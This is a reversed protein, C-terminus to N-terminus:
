RWPVGWVLKGDNRREARARSATHDLAPPVVRNPACPKPPALRSARVAPYLGTVAGVALAAAVGGLLGTLPVAFRWQQTDAYFWTITAGLGVGVAGGLTRAVQVKV